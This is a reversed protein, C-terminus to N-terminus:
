QPLIDLVRIADPTFGRMGAIFECLTANGSLDVKDVTIYDSRPSDYSRYEVLISNV